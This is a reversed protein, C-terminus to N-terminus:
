LETCKNKKGLYNYFTDETGGKVDV